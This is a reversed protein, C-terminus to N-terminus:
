DVKIGRRTVWTRSSLSKPDPKPASVRQPTDLARQITEMMEEVEKRGPAEFYDARRVEDLRKRLKRLEIETQPQEPLQKLDHLLQKYEETSRRCFSDRFSSNSPDDAADVNFLWAEGGEQLIESRLWQLDEMNEDSQPLIYCSNKIALAGLSNLRRLVKARFYPPSPPIQHLLLLWRQQGHLM